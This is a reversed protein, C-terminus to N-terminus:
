GRKSIVGLDILTESITDLLELDDTKDYEECARFKKIGKM